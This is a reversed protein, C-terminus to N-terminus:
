DSLSLAAEIAAEKEPPCKPVKAKDSKPKNYCESKTIDYKQKIQAVYLSFVKM